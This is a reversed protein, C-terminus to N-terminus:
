KKLMWKYFLKWFIAFYIIFLIASANTHFANLAFERSWYAGVLFDKNKDNLKLKYTLQFKDHFHKEKFKRDIMEEESLNQDLRFTMVEKFFIRDDKLHMDGDDTFCDKFNNIAASIDKPFKEHFYTMDKLWITVKKGEEDFYWSVISEATKGSLSGINYFEEWDMGEGEKSIRTEKIINDDPITSEIESHHSQNRREKNKIKKNM